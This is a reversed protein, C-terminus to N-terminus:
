ANLRSEHIRVKKGNPLIVTWFTNVVRVKTAVLDGYTTKYDEYDVTAKRTKGISKELVKSEKSDLVVEVRDEVRALDSLSMESELEKLDETIWKLKCIQEMEHKKENWVKRDIKWDILFNGNLTRLTATRKGSFEKVERWEGSEVAKGSLLDEKEKELAELRSMIADLQTKKIEVTTDKTKEESM